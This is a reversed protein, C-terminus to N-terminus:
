LHVYAARRRPISTSAWRYAEPAWRQAPLLRLRVVAPAHRTTSSHGFLDPRQAYAEPVVELPNPTSFSGADLSVGSLVGHTSRREM